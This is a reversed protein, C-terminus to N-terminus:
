LCENNLRKGSPAEGGQRAQMLEYRELVVKAMRVSAADIMKGNLTSAGVGKSSSADSQRIVNQAHQVESHSPSFTANTMELQSPHICQKGDFGMAKAIKCSKEFGTADQYGAFPGDICRLHNARATAVIAHMVAHWRHGPYLHDWEDSEGISTSPMGMSAAYDGPGFILAELRSSAQAIEKLYVFGAATEIQAEIGIKNKAGSYM